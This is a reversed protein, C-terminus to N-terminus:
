LDGLTTRTKGGDTDVQARGSETLVQGLGSAPSVQARGSETAAQSLGSAPSVQTRRTEPPEAGQEGGSVTIPMAEDTELVTGLLRSKLRGLAQALGSETVIGLLRSKMRGVPQAADLEAVVGLTRSKSRGIAQASDSETVVGLTRSKARGAPQASDTEDVVGLVRTKARSLPQAEDTETVTGLTRQQHAKIELAIGLCRDVTAWSADVTTDNLKKEVLFGTGPTAFNEAALSDFGSGLALAENVAHFFVGVAVNASSAFAALTVTLNASTADGEASVSQVVGDAGNDSTSGGADTCEVIAWATGNEVVVGYDMLVAGTSPAAGRARFVVLRRQVASHLITAVQTWTLGCGSVNPSRADTDDTVAVALLILRDAAPM